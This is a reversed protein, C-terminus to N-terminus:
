RGADMRVGVRLMRGPTRFGYIETYAAGFADDLRATLTIAPRGPALRLLAADAWLDLRTYAALVVRASPFQSFDLDGRAGTYAVRAGGAIGPLPMFQATLAASHAPRRILPSGPKFQAGDYGSDTVGTHLFTVQAELRVARGPAFHAEVEVGSANAGAINYYNPATPGVFAYQIMDRFRQDFYSVSASGRASLFSREVGIEWSTSREPKLDPNGITFSTSYNQDLSPERFATGVNARLRTEAAVRATVGFRWTGHTGFKDNDDVRAGAQISLGGVGTLAQAYLARNTRSSDFLPGAYPPSGQFTDGLTDRESESEIVGGVTYLSSAGGHLNLRLDASRRRVLSRSHYQYLGTTDAANDQADETRSREENYGLLVRAEIRSSLWQGGDLSATLRRSTAYQNSDVPNGSGDTPYHLLADGFRVAVLLDTHAGPTLRLSGSATSNRYHNNFAYIGDTATQELGLSAGAARGGTSMEFGLDTSGYTGGSVTVSSHTVTARRTFIQMVGSVADSGYLVSSPGRVLEIREVNLTSVNALDLYGGTANVPVGDVLVRVYNSQGGRLFLSTVGGFSGNQVIAVGALSRIADGVTAVGARELDLGDLVTVANPVAASPSPSRTATVVIPTLSVTDHEQALAPQAAVCAAAIVVLTSIHRM